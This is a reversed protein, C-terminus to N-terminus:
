EGSSRNRVQPEITGDALTAEGLHTLRWVPMRQASISSVLGLAKLMELAESVRGMLLLPQLRRAGPFDRLLYECVQQGRVSNGQNIGDPGLCPFFAVALEDVSLSKLREIETQAVAEQAVKKESKRFLV